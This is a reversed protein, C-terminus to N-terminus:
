SYSVIVSRGSWVVKARRSPVEATSSVRRLECEKGPSLPPILRCSLLANPAARGKKGPSLPPILRCSLLANLAARGKKWGSVPVEDAQVCINYAGRYLANPAVSLKVPASPHSFPQGSYEMRERVTIPYTARSSSIEDELNHKTLPRWYASFADLATVTLVLQGPRQSERHTSVVYGPILKIIINPGLTRRLVVYTSTRWNVLLLSTKKFRALPTAWLFVDGVLSSPSSLWGAVFGLDFVKRSIGTALDVEEIHVSGRTPQVLLIRATAGGPVLDIRYRTRSGTVHTWVRRSSWIDHIHLEEPEGQHLLIYRAGPFLHTDSYMQMDGWAIKHDATRSSLQGSVASKVFDILQETSYKEIEARDPPPLELAVRFTDDQVLFLWLQKTLAIRRLSKNIESVKLVTYVDCFCLVNLLADEDLAAFAM